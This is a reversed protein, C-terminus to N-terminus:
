AVPQDFKQKLVIIENKFEALEVRIEDALKEAKKFNEMAEELTFEEGDFWAVIKELEAMKKNLTNNEESM